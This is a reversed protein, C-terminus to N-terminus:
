FLVLMRVCVCVCMRVCVCVFTCVFVCVCLCVEAASAFLCGDPSFKLFIVPLPMKCRWSEKWFGEELEKDRCCCSYPSLDPKKTMWKDRCLCLCPFLSLLRYALQGLVAMAMSIVIGFMLVEKSCLMLAKLCTCTGKLWVHRYM